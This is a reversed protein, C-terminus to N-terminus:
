HRIKLNGHLLHVISFLIRHCKRDLISKEFNKVRSSKGSIGRRLLVRSVAQIYTIISCQRTLTARSLQSSTSGPTTPSEDLKLEREVPLEPISLPLEESRPGRVASQGLLSPSKRSGAPGAITNNTLKILGYPWVDVFFLMCGSAHSHHVSSQVLLFPHLSKYAGPGRLVSELTLLDIPGAFSSLSLCLCYM